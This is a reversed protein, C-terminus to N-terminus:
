NQISKQIRTERQKKSKKQLNAAQGFDGLPFLQRLATIWTRLLAALNPTSGLDHSRSWVTATFVSNKEERNGHRRNYYLATHLM